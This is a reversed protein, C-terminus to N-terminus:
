HEAPPSPAGAPDAPTTSPEAAAPESAPPQSDGAVLDGQPPATGSDPPATEVPEDVEDEPAATGGSSVQPKSGVLVPSEDQGTVPQAAPEPATIAGM